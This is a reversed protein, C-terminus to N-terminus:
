QTKHWQRNDRHNNFTVDWAAKWAIWEISDVPHPNSERPIGLGYAEVGKDWASAAAPTPNIGNMMETMLARTLKDHYEPRFNVTLDLQIDLTINSKPSTDIKQSVENILEIGRQFKEAVEEMLDPEVFPGLTMRFGRMEEKIDIYEFGKLPSKKKM